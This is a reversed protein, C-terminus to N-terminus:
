MVTMGSEEFQIESNMRHVCATIGWGGLFMTEHFLITVVSSARVQQTTLHFWIPYVLTYEYLRKRVVRGLSCFWSLIPFPSLHVHLGSFTFAFSRPFYLTIFEFEFWWSGTCSTCSRGNITSKVEGEKRKGTWATTMWHSASLCQAVSIMSQYYM